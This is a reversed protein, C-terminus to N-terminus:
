QISNSKRKYKGMGHLGVGALAAVVGFFTLPRLPVAKVPELFFALILLVPSVLLLWSGVIQVVKKWGGTQVVGYLGLAINILGCFLIYVHNARYQYRIVETAEYAEPFHMRMYWGTVLFILVTLLGATRHLRQLTPM